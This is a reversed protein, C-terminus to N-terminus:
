KKQFLEYEKYMYQENKKLTDTKETNQTEKKKLDLM